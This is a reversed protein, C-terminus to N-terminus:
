SLWGKSKAFRSYWIEFIGVILVVSPLFLATNGWVPHWDSLVFANFDQVLVAVFSLIFAPIAFSKRLLMLAAAIVGVTVATAYAATAWVPENNMWEQQAETFNAAMMEPTMTVQTYYGFLGLLNWLLFIVGIVWFSTPLKGNLADSM